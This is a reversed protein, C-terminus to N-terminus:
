VTKTDELIAVMKSSAEELLYRVKMINVNSAESEYRHFRDLQALTSRVEAVTNWADLVTSRAERETAQYHTLVEVIMVVADETYTDNVIKRFQIKADEKTLGNVMMTDSIVEGDKLYQFLVKHLPGQIIGM